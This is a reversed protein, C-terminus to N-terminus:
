RPSSTINSANLRESAVTRCGCGAPVQCVSSSGPGTAPWASPLMSSSGACATYQARRPQDCKGNKHPSPPKEGDRKKHASEPRAPVSALTSASPTRGPPPVTQPPASYTRVFRVPAQPCRVQVRGAIGLFRICVPEWTDAAADPKSRDHLIHSRASAVSKRRTGFCSRESKAPPALWYRRRSGRAFAEPPQARRPGSVVFGAASAAPETM